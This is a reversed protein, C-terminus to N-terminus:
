EEEEQRPAAPAGAPSKEVVLSVNHGGFAFSNSMVCRVPTRIPTWPTYDLPCQPDPDDLNITPPVTDHQVSLVSAVFEVAGSAGLMHGTMSKNATCRLAAAHPGFVTAVASSESVDGLKTATGHTNVSTVDAPKLGADRLAKRMGAAAGVGNPAPKTPHFADTSTGYGTLRARPRARRRRAHAAGELVVVAAGEGVVFGARGRDFPRCARDPRENERALARMACFGAISLEHVSAETGGCVAVDVEGREILRMGEGIAHAGAACATSTVLSPGRATLEIAVEAAAMNVLMGPVYYPNIASLGDAGFRRATGTVSDYGGTGSGILVAVREPDCDGGPQPGGLKLGADQVAMLAAALAYRTFLGLHRSRSSDLWRDIDFGPVEGAIRVPLGAADFRTIPGIGSSGACLRAWFTEIDCGLPSVVGLGTVVAQESM